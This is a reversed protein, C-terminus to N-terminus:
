DVQLEALVSKTIEDAYIRKDIFDNVHAELYREVTNDIQMAAEWQGCYAMLNSVALFMGIPNPSDYSQWSDESGSCPEFMAVQGPSIYSNAGFGAGGQLERGMGMLMEGISSPSVIVGFQSPNTVMLASAEVANLSDITVDPYERQVEAVVRRGLDHAPVTKYTDVLTLHRDERLHALSFAYRVVREVGKRTFVGQTLALEDITNKQLFTGLNSYSSETNECVIIMDINRALEKKLPCLEPCYCHIPRANVFLDLEAWLRARIGQDCVSRDLRPDGFGGLLIGDMTGLADIQADSILEGYEIYNDTGLDFTKLQYEFGHVKAVQELVSLACRTM